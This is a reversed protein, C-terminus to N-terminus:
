ELFVLAVTKRTADSVRPSQVRQDKEVTPLDGEVAISIICGGWPWICAKIGRQSM